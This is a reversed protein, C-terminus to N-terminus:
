VNFFQEPFSVFYKLNFAWRLLMKLPVFAAMELLLVLSTWRRWSWSRDRRWLFWAVVLGLAFYCGVLALGPAERVLPNMDLTSRGLWSWWVIESVNANNIPDVRHPDWYEWPWFFNWHPGRCFLGVLLLFLWAAEFVVLSWPIIRCRQSPKAGAPVAWSEGLFAIAVFGFTYVLPFVWEAIWPDFYVLLEQFGYVISPRNPDELRGFLADVGDRILGAAFWLVLNAFGLGLGLQRLGRGGTGSNPVTM